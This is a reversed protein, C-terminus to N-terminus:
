LGVVISGAIVILTAIIKQWVHEKEKFIFISSLVALLTALQLLPYVLTVDAIAFARLTFYYMLAQFSIGLFASVPKRKLLHKIQKTRGRIFLVLVITPILYVMVGYTGPNFWNLAYKDLIAVSAGLLASFLTWLVGKDTLRGWKREPHWLLLSIGAFIILNGYFRTMSFTEKLFLIGLLFAWLLKSNMLPDRISVQTGKISIKSVIAIVSWLGAAVILVVWAINENPLKFDPISIILFILMSIFNLMLAYAYPETDELVYKHMLKTAVSFIVALGVFIWAETIM